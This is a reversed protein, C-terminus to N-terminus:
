FKDDKAAKLETEFKAVLQASESKFKEYRHRKNFLKVNDGGLKGEILKEINTVAELVM